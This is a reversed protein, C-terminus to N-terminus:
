GALDLEKKPIAGCEKAFAILEQARDVLDRLLDSDQLDPVMLAEAAATACHASSNLLRATEERTM